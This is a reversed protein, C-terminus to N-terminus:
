ELIYDWVTKFGIFGLYKVTPGHVYLKRNYNSPNDALNIERKLYISNSLCVSMIKRTDTEGKKDAILVSQTYTFPSTFEANSSSKKCDGVIYGKVGLMWGTGKEIALSVSCTDNKTNVTQTDKPQANIVSDKNKIASDGKPLNSDGTDSPEIKEKQSPDDANNEATYEKECSVFTLLLLFVYVLKRMIYKLDSFLTLM